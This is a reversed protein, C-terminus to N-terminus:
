KLMTRNDQYSVHPDQEDARRYTQGDTRRDTGGRNIGYPSSASIIFFYVL